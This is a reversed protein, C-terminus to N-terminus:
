AQKFLSCHKGGPRKWDTGTGLIPKSDIGLWDDLLSAYVDRFDHNYKLDGEDLDTLSPYKGVLGSKVRTGVTFMVSAAGHDTGLSANEQLRRGFESFTVLCVQDLLKHSKLDSVFANIGQSLEALLAAHAKDQKAHTDFGDHTLFYVRPGFEAQIM